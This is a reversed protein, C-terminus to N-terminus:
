GRIAIGGVVMAGLGLLIGLFTPKIIDLSTCVAKGQNSISENSCDTTVGEQIYWQGETDNYYYGEFSQSRAGNIVDNLPSALALGMFFFIIGLMFIYIIQSQGQKNKM